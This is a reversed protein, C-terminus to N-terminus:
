RGLLKMGIPEFLLQFPIVFSPLETKTICFCGIIAALALLGGYLAAEKNKQKMLLSRISLISWIALMLIYGILQTIM